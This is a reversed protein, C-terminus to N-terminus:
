QQGATLPVTMEGARHVPAELRAAATGMGLPLTFLVSVLLLLVQCSVLVAGQRGRLDCGRLIV